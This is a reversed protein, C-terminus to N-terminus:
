ARAGGQQSGFPLAHASHVTNFLVGHPTYPGSHSM